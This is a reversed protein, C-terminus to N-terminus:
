TPIQYRKGTQRKGGGAGEGGEGRPSSQREQDQAASFGSILIQIFIEKLKPFSMHPDAGPRDQRIQLGQRSRRWWGGAERQSVDQKQEPFFFTAQRVSDRQRIYFSIGGTLARTREQDRVNKRPFSFSLCAVQTKGM